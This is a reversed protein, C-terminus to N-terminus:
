AARTLAICDRGNSKATYLREDALRYIEQYTAPKAFSIGGISVSLPCLVEDPTFVIASVSRRVREAVEDVVAHKAEALYIGFEEGGLRGVLDSQRVSFRIAQAILCLAEDGRQHGFRDNVRKFDDADVMLLAGTRGAQAPDALDAEVRATFSGRNLCATLWDTEALVRLQRNAHRLQEHRLSLYFMMPGGLVIPMIVASALGPLNLGNSFAELIFNTTLVSAAVSGMTALGTFRRIRTWAVPPLRTSIEIM